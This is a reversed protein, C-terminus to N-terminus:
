EQKRMIVINEKSMTKGKLGPINEPANVWPLRKSPINRPIITLNNEFGIEMGMEIIIIHTPVQIRSVTRNAIVICCYGEEDLATYMNILCKYLDSFFTACEAARKESNDRIADLTQNLTFFDLKSLSNPEGGLSTKDINMIVERDMEEEFDLWLSSLRSFQGYAVTTRSDGYPPSTVIIKPPKKILIDNANKPFEDTFMKRTDGLFVRSYVDKNCKEYFKKMKQISKDVYKLFTKYVNPSFKKWKDEPIRYLKYEGKRTGSVDRITYSFPIDFFKRLNDDIINNLNRRIIALEKMTSPKFWYDINTGSFDPLRVDKIERFKFSRIESGIKRKLNVWHKKLVEPNIPNSKVEALLCALPNIDLGISNMSALRAEVLVGGSGCFPDLVVDGKSSYRELLRRSIQPIMKAPYPHLGHTMYKTNAGKFDWDEDEVLRANIIENMNWSGVQVKVGLEEKPILRWCPADGKM